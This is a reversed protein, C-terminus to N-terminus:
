ALGSRKRIIWEASLLLVLLGLMWPIHSLDLKRVQVLPSVVFLSDSALVDPLETLSADAFFQGGSRYAIQRLLAGDSRTVRQELGLSGVTFTGNDIGLSANM